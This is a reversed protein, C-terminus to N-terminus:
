GQPEVTETGPTYVLGVSQGDTLQLTTVGEQAYEWEAGPATKVWLAWYAVSSLTQCTETYPAEGEILVPEDASPLANVRCVVQDGYDVTGETVVGAQQLVESAVGAAVCDKIPTEDIPGFEVTVTVLDCTDGSAGETEAGSTPAPTSPEEAAPAACASLALAAVVLLASAASRTRRTFFTTRTM